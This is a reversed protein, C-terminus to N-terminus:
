NFIEDLLDDFEEDERSKGKIVITKSEDKKFLDPLLDNNIDSQKDIGFFADLEDDNNDIIIDDFDPDSDVQLENYVLYSCFLYEHIDRIEALEDANTVLEPIVKLMRMRFLNKIDALLDIFFDIEDYDALEITNSGYKDKNDFVFIKQMKLIGIEELRVSKFGAYASIKFEDNLVQYFSKIHFFDLTDQRANSLAVNINSLEEDDAIRETELLYTFRYNFTSYKKSLSNCASKIKNIFEFEYKYKYKKVIESDDLSRKIDDVFRILDCYKMLEPITYVNKESSALLLLPKLVEAYNSNNGGRKDVKELPEDYVKTVVIENTEKGRSVKGTKKFELYRAINQLQLERQKGKAPKLGLQKVLGNVTSFVDGECINDVNIENM